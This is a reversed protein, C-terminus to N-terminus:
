GFIEAALMEEQMEELSRRVSREVVRDGIRVRAGGLLHPDIRTEIVVDLVRPEREAHRAREERMLRDRLKTRLRERVDPPLEVATTVEVRVLGRAEDLLVQYAEGISDLIEIRNKRMLLQLLRLVLPHVRDQFLRDVIGQREERSIQPARVLETWRANQPDHLFRELALLDAGVETALRRAGEWRTEPGAIRVEGEARAAEFLAHAYRRAVPDFAM